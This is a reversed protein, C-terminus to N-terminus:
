GGSVAVDIPTEGSQDPAEITAGYQLLLYVIAEHGKEVALMLPTKGDNKKANVGVGNKPLVGHELLLVVLDQRGGTVAMMLATLGNKDTLTRDVGKGLLLRVITDHGQSVAILLPSVGDKDQYNVNAKPRQVLWELLDKHGGRAALHLASGGLNLATSSMRDFSARNQLLLQVVDAHGGQIAAELASSGFEGGKNAQYQLLKAVMTRGGKASAAYLANGDGDVRAGSKILMVVVDEHGGEVAAVLPSGYVGDNINVEAGYLTLLFILETHGGYAAAQLPTGYHGSASNVDAGADLLLGSVDYQGSYSAAQLATGYFGSVANVDVRKDLFEKIVPWHGGYAAAQLPTGFYGGSDQHPYGRLLLRQVVDVLGLLSAYYLPPPFNSGNLYLAEPGEPGKLRPGDHESSERRAYQVDLLRVARDVTPEPVEVLKQVAQIHKYWNELVHKLLPFNSNARKTISLPADEIASLLYGLSVYSVLKQAELESMAFLASFSEINGSSVYAKLMTVTVLEEMITRFLSKDTHFLSSTLIAYRYTLYYSLFTLLVFASLGPQLRTTGGEAALRYGTM